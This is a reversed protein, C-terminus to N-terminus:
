EKLGLLPSILRGFPTALAHNIRQTRARLAVLEGAQSANIRDLEALHDHLEQLRQQSQKDATSANALSGPKDGGATGAHTEKNPAGARSADLEAAMKQMLAMLDQIQKESKEKYAQLEKVSTDYQSAIKRKEGIQKELGTAVLRLKGTLDSIKTSQGDKETQLNHVQAASQQRQDELEASLRNRVTEIESTLKMVQDQYAAAQAAAKANIEELLQNRQALEGQLSVVRATQEDCTHEVQRLREVELLLVPLQAAKERLAKQESRLGTVEATIQEHATSLESLQQQLREFEAKLLQQEQAQATGDNELAQIKASLSANDSKLDKVSKRLSRNKEKLQTIAATDNEGEKQQSLLQIQQKLSENEARLETMKM